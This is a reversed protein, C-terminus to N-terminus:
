FSSVSTTLELKLLNFGYSTSKHAKETAAKKERRHSAEKEKERDEPTQPRNELGSTTCVSTRKRGYVLRRHLCRLSNVEARKGTM